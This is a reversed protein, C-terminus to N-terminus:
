DSIIILKNGNELRYKIKTIAMGKLLQNLTLSRGIEGSFKGDPIKGQYVIDLDYWRALQRMLTQLDVKEFAFSGNKWAIDLRVDSKFIRGGEYVQGPVLNKSGISVAGELLATRVQHEDKYSNVNFSTGHVVIRDSYTKVIFERQPDKAVEFYAEGTISVERTNGTFRSPYTISSAANLWVKSGDSLILQYIGGRPTSMTNYLVQVNNNSESKYLIEGNTLKEIKMNGERALLGSSASDLMITSGDSLLLVARQTGPSIDGPPLPEQRVVDAKSSPKVLMYAATGLSILILIAAAYRLLRFPQRLWPIRATDQEPQLIRELMKRQAEPDLLNVPQEDFTEPIEPILHEDVAKSRIAAFLQEVEEPTAESRTWRDILYQM